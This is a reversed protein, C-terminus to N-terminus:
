IMKLTGVIVFFGYLCALVTLIILLIFPKKKHLLEFVLAPIALAAAVLFSIYAPFIKVQFPVDEFTTDLELEENAIEYPTLFKYASLYGNLLVYLSYIGLIILISTGIIRFHKKNEVWGYIISVVGAFIIWQPVTYLFSDNM